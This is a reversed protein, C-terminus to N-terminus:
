IREIILAIGVVASVVLRSDSATTVVEDEALVSLAGISSM